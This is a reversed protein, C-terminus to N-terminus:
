VELSSNANVFACQICVALSVVLAKYKLSQLQSIYQSQVFVNCKQPFVETSFMEYVAYLNAYKEKGETGEKAITTM